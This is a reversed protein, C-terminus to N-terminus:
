RLRARVLDAYAVTGKKRVSAPPVCLDASPDTPRADMVHCLRAPVATLDDSRVMVLCAARRREGTDPAPMLGCFGRPQPM